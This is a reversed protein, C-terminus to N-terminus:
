DAPVRQLISSGEASTWDVEGAVYGAILGRRDILYSIPMAYLVFPAATDEGVRKALRGKPDLYTHLSRIDLRKLFAQVVSRDVNDTAVALIELSSADVGKQLRDLQTLERRCPPCWTAWFNVLVAKGRLAGLEVFKGDIREIRM